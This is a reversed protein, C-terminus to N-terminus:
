KANANKKVSIQLHPQEKKNVPIVHSEGDNLKFGLKQLYSQVNIDPLSLYQVLEYVFEDQLDSACRSHLCHVASEYRHADCSFDLVVTNNFQQLCEILCAVKRPDRTPEPTFASEPTTTRAAATTTRITTTTKTTTSLQVPKPPPQHKPCLHDVWEAEPNIECFYVLLQNCRCCIQCSLPKNLWFMCKLRTVPECVNQNDGLSRLQPISKGDIINQVLEVTDIVTPNLHCKTQCEHLHKIGENNDVCIFDHMSVQLQPKMCVALCSPRGIDVQVYGEPPGPLTLNVLINLLLPHM